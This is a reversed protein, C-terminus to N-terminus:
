KREAETLLQRALAGSREARDADYHAPGDEVEVNGSV